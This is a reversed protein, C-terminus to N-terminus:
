EVSCSTGHKSFDSDFVDLYLTMTLQPAPETHRPAPKHKTAKTAPGQARTAKL